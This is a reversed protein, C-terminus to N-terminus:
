DRADATREPWSYDCDRCARALWEPQGASWISVGGGVPRTGPPHWTVGVDGGCKPCAVDPGSHPHLPDGPKWSSPGVPRDDNDTM